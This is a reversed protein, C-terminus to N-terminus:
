IRTQDKNDRMRTATPELVEPFNSIGLQSDTTQKDHYEESVM